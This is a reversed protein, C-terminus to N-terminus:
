NKAYEPLNKRIRREREYTKTCVIHVFTLFLTRFVRGFVCSKKGGGLRVNYNNKKTTTQRKPVTQYTKESEGRSKACKPICSIYSM